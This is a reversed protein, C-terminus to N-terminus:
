PNTKISAKFSLNLNRSTKNCCRLIFIKFQNQMIDSILDPVRLKRMCGSSVLEFKYPNAPFSKTSQVTICSKLSNSCLSKLILVEKMLVSM